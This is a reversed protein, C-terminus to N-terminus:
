IEIFVSNKRFIKSFINWYGIDNLIKWNSRFQEICVSPCIYMAFRITVKRLKAFAKLFLTIYIWFARQRALPEYGGGFRSRWVILDLAEAKLNWYRRKEELEDPLNKRRRGLRGRVKIRGEVSGEVVHKILWNRRLFHGIWNSKRRKITQLIIRKENVRRLAEENRM